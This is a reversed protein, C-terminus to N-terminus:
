MESILCLFDAFLIIVKRQETSILKLMVFWIPSPCYHVVQMCDTDWPYSMGPFDWHEVVTDDVVGSGNRLIAFGNGKINVSKETYIDMRYEPLEPVLTFLTFPEQQVGIGSDQGVVQTGRQVLTQNLLALYRTDRYAAYGVEYFTAYELINEGGSDKIRPFGFNPKIWEFPANFIKKM